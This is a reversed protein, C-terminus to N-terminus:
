DLTYANIVISQGCTTLIEVDVERGVALWAEADQAVKEMCMMSTPDDDGDLLVLARRPQGEEEEQFDLLCASSREAQVPTMSGYLTPGSADFLRRFTPYLCCACTYTQLVRSSVIVPGSGDHLMAISGLDMEDMEQEAPEGETWIVHDGALTADNLKELPTPLPRSSAEWRFYANRWTDKRHLLQVGSGFRKMVLLKWLANFGGKFRKFKASLEKISSLLATIDRGSLRRMVYQVWVETPVKCLLLEM